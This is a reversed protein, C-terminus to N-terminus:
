SGVYYNYSIILFILLNELSAMLLKFGDLGCFDIDGDRVDGKGRDGVDRNGRDEEREESIRQRPERTDGVDSGSM